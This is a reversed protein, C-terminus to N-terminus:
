AQVAKQPLRFGAKRLARAAGPHFPIGAAYIPALEQAHGAAPVAVGLLRRNKLAAGTVAEALSDPLDTACVAVNSTGVTGVNVSQGPFTDASLVTRFFGPLKHAVQASQAASMGILALRRGMAAASLAPLPPAGIFACAALDGKLMALVQQQYDGMVVRAPAVGLATLIQQVTDASSSGDPGVGVVQGQLQALERVGAKTSAVIQLSSAYAPFLARFGNLKVGATWGGQGSRGQAAVATSSIGLQAKGEEILLLDASSGGTTRYAIDIGTERQVLEGWAPAFIAFAGGPAGTGMVLAGPWPAAPPAALGPRAFPLALGAGLLGRRTLSM